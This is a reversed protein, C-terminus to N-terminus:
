PTFQASQEKELDAVLAEFLKRSADIPDASAPTDYPTVAHEKKPKSQTAGEVCFPLAWWGDRRNGIRWVPWV